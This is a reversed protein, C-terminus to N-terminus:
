IRFKLSRAQKQSQAPQNTDSRTQFGLNITKEQSREVDSGPIYLLSVQQQSTLETCIDIKPM